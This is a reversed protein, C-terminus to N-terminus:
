LALIHPNTGFDQNFLGCLKPVTFSARPYTTFEVVSCIPLVVRKVNCNILDMRLILAPLHFIIQVRKDVQTEVRRGRGM